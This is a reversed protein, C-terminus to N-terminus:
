RSARKSESDVIKQATAEHKQLVPLTEDLLKKLKEDSTGDRAKTADAIAKKHDDVMQQAFKADFGAGKPLSAMEDKMSPVPELTVKEQKALATVSKDAATHDKVLMKGFSKVEKSQGQQESLKGMDIEEQNARHLENLVASTDVGAAVATGALTSGAVALAVAARQVARNVNITIM